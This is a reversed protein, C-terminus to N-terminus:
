PQSRCLQPFTSPFIDEAASGPTTRRPPGDCDVRGKGEVAKVIQDCGAMSMVMRHFFLCKISPTFLYYFYLHSFHLVSCDYTLLVYNVWFLHFWLARDKVIFKGLYEVLHFM